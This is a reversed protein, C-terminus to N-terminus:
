TCHKRPALTSLTCSKHKGSESGTGARAFPITFAAAGPLFVCNRPAQILSDLFESTYSGPTRGAEEEEEFRARARKCEFHARAQRREIRACECPIPLETRIRTGLFQVRLAVDGRWIELAFLSRLSGVSAVSAASASRPRSTSGTMSGGAGAGNASGAGCACRWCRPCGLWGRGDCKNHEPKVGVGHMVQAQRGRPRLSQQVSSRQPLVHVRPVARATSVSRVSRSELNANATPPPPRSHRPTGRRRQVSPSLAYRAPTTSPTVPRRHVSPISHLYPIQLMCRATPALSSSGRSVGPQHHVSPDYPAGTFTEHAFSPIRLLSGHDAGSGVFGPSPSNTQIGRSAPSATCPPTTRSGLSPKESVGPQAEDVDWAVERQPDLRGNLGEGPAETEAGGGNRKGEVRRACRSHSHAARAASSGCSSSYAPRRPPRGGVHAHRHRHHRHADM